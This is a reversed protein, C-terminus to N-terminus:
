SQSKNNLANWNKHDHIISELDDLTWPKGIFREIVGNKLLHTVRKSNAQGSLMYFMLNPYTQKLQEILDAGNMEPMQYDILFFIVEVGIEILEAIQDKVDLPNTFIEIGLDESKILSKLQVQLVTLIFPDDDVCVIVYKM